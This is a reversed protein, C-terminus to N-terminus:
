LMTLRIICYVMDNDKFASEPEYWGLGDSELSGMAVYLNVREGKM